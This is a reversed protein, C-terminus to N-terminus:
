TLVSCHSCVARLWPLSLTCCSHLNCTHSQQLDPCTSLDGSPPSTLVVRSRSQQGGGCEASCASWETWESVICAQDCSQLNCERSQLTADCPSNGADVVSRTRSQTGPGCQASCDGWAGWQSLVCPEPPCEDVNCVTSQSLAPCAAGSGSQEVVVVRSRSKTGGGCTESCPSWGSWEGVQCDVAVPSLSWSIAFNGDVNQGNVLIYYTGAAVGYETVAPPVTGSGFSPCTGWVGQTSEAMTSAFLSQFMATPCTDLLLLRTNFDTAADCLTIHVDSASPLTISFLADGTAADVFDPTGVTSAQHWWVHM